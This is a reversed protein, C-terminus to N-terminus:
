QFTIKKKNSVFISSTSISFLLLVYTPCGLTLNFFPSIVIIVGVAPSQHPIRQKSIVVGKTPEIINWVILDDDPTFLYDQM